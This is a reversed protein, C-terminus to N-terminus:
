HNLGSEGHPLITLKPSEVKSATLRVFISVPWFKLGMTCTFKDKRIITGLLEDDHDTM